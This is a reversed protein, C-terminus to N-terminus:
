GFFSGTVHLIKTRLMSLMHTIINSTYNGFKPRSNDLLKGIVRYTQNAILYIFYMLFM